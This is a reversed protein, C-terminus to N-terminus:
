MRGIPTETFGINARASVDDPDSSAAGGTSKPAHVAVGLRRRAGERRPRRARQSLGAPRKRAASAQEVM